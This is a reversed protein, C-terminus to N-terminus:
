HVVSDPEGSRRTIPMEGQPTDLPLLLQDFSEMGEATLPDPNALQGPMETDGISRDGTVHFTESEAPDWQGHVLTTSTPDAQGVRAPLNGDDEIHRFQGREHGAQGHQSRAHALASGRGHALQGFGYIGGVM